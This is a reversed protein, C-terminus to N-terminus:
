GRVTRPWLGGRGRGMGWRYGKELGVRQMKVVM